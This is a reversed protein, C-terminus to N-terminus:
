KKTWDFCSLGLKIKLFELFGLRRRNRDFKNIQILSQMKNKRNFRDFHEMNEQSFHELVFGDDKLSKPRIEGLYHTKKESNNETQFNKLQVSNPSHGKPSYDDIISERKNETVNKENMNRYAMKEEDWITYLKRMIITFIIFEKELSVLLLGVFFLSSSLGGLDAIAEQFKQYRRSVRLIQGSSFLNLSAVWEKNNPVMDVEKSDFVFTETLKNTSFIYGEDNIFESKKFTLRMSKSFRADIAFYESQYIKQVPNKEDFVDIINTSYYANLYKGVFFSTINEPSQCKNNYTANDCPKLSVTVTKVITEDWFGALSFNGLTPCIVSNMELDQYYSGHSRFDSERCRSLEKIERKIFVGLTNNYEQYEMEFSYLSPDYYYKNDIDSVIFAFAMNNFDFSLEPRSSTLIIQNSSLPSNHYFLDSQCFFVLLFALIVMSVLSNFTSPIERNKNFLLVVPSKFIDFFYLFSYFRKMNLNTERIKKINKSIPSYNSNKLFFDDFFM